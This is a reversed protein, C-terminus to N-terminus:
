VELALKTIRAVLAELTGNKGCSSCTDVYVPWRCTILWAEAKILEKVCGKNLKEKKTERAVSRAAIGCRKELYATSDEVRQTSTYLRFTNNKSSSLDVTHYGM